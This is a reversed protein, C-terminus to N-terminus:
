SAPDTTQIAAPPNPDGSMFWNRFWTPFRDGVLRDLGYYNGAGMGALALLVVAYTLHEEVIGNTFSWGALFLFAMMLAGMAGAFRTLIGLILAIGICMEGAVVLNNVITMAFDNNALSVWFGHTPNYIANPDPTGTVFPWGLTGNTAFKLYAQASWSGPAGGNFVKDLGAWIFIVGVVVRLLEVGYRSIPAYIYL